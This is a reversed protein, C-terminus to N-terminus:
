GRGSWFEASSQVLVVEFEVLDSWADMWPTLAEAAPARMLQYCRSGDAAMWSDVYEIASSAPVLRGRARFREGVADPSGGRFKEIVMFLM